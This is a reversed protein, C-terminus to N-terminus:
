VRDALMWVSGAYTLSTVLANADVFVESGAPILKNPDSYNIEAGSGELYMKVMAVAPLLEKSIDDPISEFTPYYEIPKILTCGNGNNATHEYKWKSYNHYTQSFNALGVWYGASPRHAFIWKDRCFMDKLKNDVDVHNTKASNLLKYAKDFQGRINSPIDAEAIDNFYRKLLWGISEGNIDSTPTYSVPNERKLHKLVECGADDALAFHVNEAQKKMDEFRYRATSDVTGLVRNAVYMPKESSGYQTTQRSDPGDYVHIRYADRGHASLKAVRMNNPFGIHAAISDLIDNQVEVCQLGTAAYIKLFPVYLASKKLKVQDNISVWPAFADTPDVRKKSFRTAM